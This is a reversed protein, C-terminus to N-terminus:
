HEKHPPWPDTGRSGADTLHSTFRLALNQLGRRGFQWFRLNLIAATVDIRGSFRGGGKATIEITAFPPHVSPPFTPCM